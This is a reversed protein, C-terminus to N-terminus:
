EAFRFVFLHCAVLRFPKITAVFPELVGCIHGRLALAIGSNVTGNLSSLRLGSPVLQLTILDKLVKRTPNFQDLLEISSVLITFHDM